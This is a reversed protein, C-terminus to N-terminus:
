SSTMVRSRDCGHGSQRRVDQVTFCRTAAGTSQRPFNMRDLIAQFGVDSRLSDYCPEVKIQNLTDVHTRYAQELQQIALDKEHLAV